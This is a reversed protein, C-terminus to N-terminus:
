AILATIPLLILAIVFLGTLIWGASRVQRLMMGLQNLIFQIVLYIIALIPIRYFIDFKMNVGVEVFFFLMVLMMLLSIVKDGLMFSRIQLLCLAILFIENVYNVSDLVEGTVFSLGAFIGISIGVFLLFNFLMVIEEFIGVTLGATLMGWLITIYSFALLSLMIINITRTSEYFEDSSELLIGYAYSIALALLFSLIISLIVSVNRVIMAKRRRLVSITGRGMLVYATLSSALGLLVFNTMFVRFNITADLAIYNETPFLTLAQTGLLYLSLLPMVVSASIGTIVTALADAVSVAFRRSIFGSLFNGLLTALLVVVIAILINSAMLGTFVIDGGALFLFTVSLLASGWTLVILTLMVPLRFNGSLSALRAIFIPMGIPFLIIVLLSINM